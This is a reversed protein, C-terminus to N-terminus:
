WELDSCLELTLLPGAWQLADAAVNFLKPGSRFGFPLTKNRGNRCMGLLSLPQDTPHVPLLRFANKVDLKAVLKTSKGLQLVQCVVDDVSCYSLSCLEKPIGDNASHPDPSSLNIILRWNGPSSKKKTVGFLSIQLGPMSTENTIEVVRREMVEKVLYDEVM